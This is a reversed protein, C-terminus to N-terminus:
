SIKALFQRGERQMQKDGKLTIMNRALHEELHASDKAIKLFNNASNELLMKSTPRHQPDKILLLYLFDKFEDSWKLPNKM